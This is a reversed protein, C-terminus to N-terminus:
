KTVVVYPSDTYDAPVASHQATTNVIILTIQLSNLFTHTYESVAYPDPSLTTITHWYKHTVRCVFLNM